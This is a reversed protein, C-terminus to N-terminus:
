PALATIWRGVEAFLAEREAAIVHNHGSGALVYSSVSPAALLRDPLEDFGHVIDAEGAALLVPVEVRALAADAAGPVMSALGALALLDGTAHVLLDRGGSVAGPNLADSSTTTSPVLPRGFRAEVLAPLAAELAEYDGEFRLEDPGLHEPLGAGGFGLLVAADYSAHGAQQHVVLLGGMSHGTGVVRAVPVPGAGGPAAGARLRAVVEAVVHANVRALVRPTLASADDPPPSEGVGLHDVTLVALGFREVLVRAMSWRGPLLEPLDFYRRNMGGGPLCVVLTLPDDGGRGPPLFLDAVVTASGPPGVESVDVEVRVPEVPPTPRDSAVAACYGDTV